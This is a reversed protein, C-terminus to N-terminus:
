VSRTQIISTLQNSGSRREFRYKENRRKGVNECSNPQDNFENSKSDTRGNDAFHEGTAKRNRQEEPAQARLISFAPLMPKFGKRM